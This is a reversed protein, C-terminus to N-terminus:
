ASVLAAVVQEYKPLAIAETPRYALANKIIVNLVSEVDNKVLAEMYADASVAGAKSHKDLFFALTRYVASATKERLDKEDVKRGLLMMTYIGFRIKQREEAGLRYYSYDTTDIRM